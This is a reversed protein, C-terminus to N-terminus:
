EASGKSAGAKAAMLLDYVSMVIRCIQTGNGRSSAGAKAALM